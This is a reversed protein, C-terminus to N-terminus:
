LEWGFTTQFVYDTKSSEDIPQNDFNYTVGMKIYFDLPLDYKMDFKFDFRWRGKSTISPYATAKTLLNLDGIDFLNLETGFYAEGSERNPDGSTFKETNLAFGGQFGWYTTNTHLIYKGIGLKFTLRQDLQQESNSLFDLQPTAYWDHPLYYRFTLIGDTRRIPEIEDQTSTILNYSFDASWMEALYGINSRINGQKLNNAKTFSYGVDVSAYLQSWFEQDISNLYVVDNHAIEYNGELTVLTLNGTQQTKLTSNYRSGDSITVLFFTTTKINVVKGWEIKFDSDSYPTEMLLIGRDMSKVEGILINGNNLHLTDATQGFGVLTTLMLAFYISKIKM